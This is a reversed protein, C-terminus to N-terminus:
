HSLWSKSLGSAGHQLAQAKKAVLEPRGFRASGDVSGDCCGGVRPGAVGVRM